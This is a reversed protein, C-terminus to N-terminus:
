FDGPIDVDFRLEITQKTTPNHIKLLAHEGKKPNKKNFDLSHHFWGEVTISKAGPKADIPSGQAWCRIQPSFTCVEFKAKTFGQPIPQKFNVTIELKPSGDNGKQGTDKVEPTGKIELKSVTQKKAIEVVSSVVALNVGLTM